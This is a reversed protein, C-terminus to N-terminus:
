KFDAEILLLFTVDLTTSGNRVSQIEQCILKLCVAKIYYLQLLIVRISIMRQPRRSNQLNMSVRVVQWLVGM